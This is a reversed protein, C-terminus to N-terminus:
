LQMTQEPFLMNRIMRRHGKGPRPLGDDDPPGEHPPVHGGLVDQGAAPVQVPRVRARQRAPHLQSREEPDVQGHQRRRAQAGADAAPAAQLRRVNGHQHLVPLGADPPHQRLRTDSVLFRSLTILQM